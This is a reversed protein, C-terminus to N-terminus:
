GRDEDRQECPSAGARASTHEGKRRPRRVPPVANRSARAAHPANRTRPASRTPATPVAAVAEACVVVVFVVVVFVVVVFVVTGLPVPMKPSRKAPVSWGTAPTWM